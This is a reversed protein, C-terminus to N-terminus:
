LLKPLCAVSDKGAAELYSAARSPTAWYSQTLSRLTERTYRKEKGKQIESHKHRTDRTLM